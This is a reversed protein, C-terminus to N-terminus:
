AWRGRGTLVEDLWREYWALFDEDGWVQAFDVIRAVDVLRGRCRGTVILLTYNECGQSM